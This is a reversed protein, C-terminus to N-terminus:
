IWSTHIINSILEIEASSEVLIAHFFTTRGKEELTIPRDKNYTTYGKISAYKHLM